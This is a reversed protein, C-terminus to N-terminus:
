KRRTYKIELGKVYDSAGEFKSWHEFTMHDPDDQRVIWRPTFTGMPCPVPDGDFTIVKGAPDATGWVVEPTTGMSSVWVGFHKQKEKSYGVLTRGEFPKGEFEGRFEEDLWLGNLVAKATAVGKSKKVEAGPEMWMSVDADWTGAEEAFRQHQPAPRAAEEMKKQMEEKSMKRPVTDDSLVRGAAFAVAAAAVALSMTNRWSM